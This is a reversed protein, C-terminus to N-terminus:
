QAAPRAEIWSFRKAEPGPTWVAEFRFRKGVANETGLLQSPSHIAFSISKNAVVPTDRNQEISDVKVVLLFQPDVGVPFLTSEHNGLPSVQEVLGTFIVKEQGLTLASGKSDCGALHACAIAVVVFLMGRAQMM